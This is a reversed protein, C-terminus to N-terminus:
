APVPQGRPGQVPPLPVPPPAPAFSARFREFDAQEVASPSAVPSDQLARDEMVVRDIRENREADAEVSSGLTHLLDAAEDISARHETREVLLSLRERVQRTQLRQQELTDLRTELTRKDEWLRRLESEKDKPIKGARQMLQELRAECAREKQECDLLVADLQAIRDIAQLRQTEFAPEGRAPQQPRVLGQLGLMRLPLSALSGALGLGMGLSVDLLEGPTRCRWISTPRPSPAAKFPIVHM